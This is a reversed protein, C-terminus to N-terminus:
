AADLRHDQRLWEELFLLLWLYYAINQDLFGKIIVPEFFEYLRSNKDLLREEIATRLSGNPAFWKQIPVGFGMKPRHVFEPTYYKEMAKKLLLKGEWQGNGNKRMNLSEPITAAFEAVRIDVFPTRVELGHMMSAVDVKTLIDFPLYTKLDM